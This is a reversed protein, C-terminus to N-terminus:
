KLKKGVPFLTKIILYCIFNKKDLKGTKKNVTVSIIDLRILLLFGGGPQNNTESAEDVPQM